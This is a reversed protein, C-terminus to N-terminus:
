MNDFENNSIYWEKGQLYGNHPDIEAFVEGKYWIYMPKYSMGGVKVSDLKICDPIEGLLVNKVYVGNYLGIPKGLRVEEKGKKYSRYYLKM